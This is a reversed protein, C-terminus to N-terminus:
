IQSPKTTCKRWMKLGCFTTPLMNESSVSFADRRNKWFFKNFNNCFFRTRFNFVSGVKDIFKTNFNRKRFIRLSISFQYKVNRSLGFKAYLRQTTNKLESFIFLRENWSTCFTFLTTNKEPSSAILRSIPLNYGQAYREVAQKWTAFEAGLWCLYVCFKLNFLQVM